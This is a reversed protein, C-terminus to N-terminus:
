GTVPTGQKGALHERRKKMLEAVQDVSLDGMIADREATYDGHGNSYLQIFRITEAPGMEKMLIRVAKRHLEAPTLTETSM